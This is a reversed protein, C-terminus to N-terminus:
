DCLLYVECIVKFEQDTEFTDCYIMRGSVTRRGRGKSTDGTWTAMWPEVDWVDEFNSRFPDRFSSLLSM